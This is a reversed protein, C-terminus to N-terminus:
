KTVFRWIAASVCIFLIVGLSVIFPPEGKGHKIIYPYYSGRKFMLIDHIITYFLIVALATIYLYSALAGEEKIIFM